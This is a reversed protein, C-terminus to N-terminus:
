TRSKAFRGAELAARAVEATVSANLHVQAYDRVFRLLENARRPNGESRLAIEHAARPDLPTELTTAWRRLLLAIEDVLYPDLRFVHGFCQRLSPGMSGIDTTAGIITFRKLDITITRKVSDKGLMVDLQFSEMASRLREEAAVSLRDIGDVFLVDGTDLGMLIAAFQDPSKIASASVNRLDTGMETAIASALTSKGFGAPAVILVHDLGEGRATAAQIAVSLVTKTGWQGIYDALSDSWPAVKFDPAYEASSDAGGRQPNRPASRYSWGKGHKIADYAANIETMRKEALARFEADLTAVKDPHNQQALRRYAAAVEVLPTGEPVGLVEWASGGGPSPKAGANRENERSQHETSQWGDARAEDARQGDGRREDDAQGDTRNQEQQDGDSARASQERETGSSDGTSRTFATAFGAANGNNSVLLRVDLGSESRLEIRGYLVIPISPNTAFRRDPGGDQRVHQWTRDIVESDRPLYESEIFRTQGNSVQLSSYSVGGYGHNGFILLQDPLFFIRQQGLDISFVERNLAVYPPAVSAVRVPTRREIIHSIGPTDTSEQEGEVCWVRDSAQLGRLGACIREFRAEEEADLNYNLEFTKRDKDLQVVIPVTVLGVILILGSSVPWSIPILGGGSAETSSDESASDQADEGEPSSTPPPGSSGGTLLSAYVWGQVSPDNVLHILKWNGQDATAVVSDTRQLVRLTQFQTGPGARLNAKAAGVSLIVATQLPPSSDSVRDVSHQTVPRDRSALYAVILLATLLVLVVLPAVEFAAIRRNIAALVAENSSDVFHEADAPKTQSTNPSPGGSSAPPDNRRARGGIRERYYLGNRGIHVYAGRPGTGVRAGTVGVSVGLGSKSFNLRVPGISISKRIYWGM